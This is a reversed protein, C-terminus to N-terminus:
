GSGGKLEKALKNAFVKLDLNYINVKHAEWIKREASGPNKHIAWSRLQHDQKNAPQRLKRLMVRVNWDTLSYGLFLFRAKAMRTAYVASAGAGLFPVVQGASLMQAIIGYPPTNKQPPGNM